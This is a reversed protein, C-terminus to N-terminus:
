VNERNRVKEVEMEFMKTKSLSGLLFQELVIEVLYFYTMGSHEWVM